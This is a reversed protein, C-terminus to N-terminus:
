KCQFAYNHNKNFSKANSPKVIKVNSEQGQKEKSNPCNSTKFYKKYVLSSKNNSRQGVVKDLDMSTICTSTCSSKLTMNETELTQVKVKLTVIKGLHM